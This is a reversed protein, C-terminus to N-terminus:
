RCNFRHWMTDPYGGEMAVQGAAGLNDLHLAVADGLNNRFQVLAEGADFRTKAFIATDARVYRDGHVTLDCAATQSLLQGLFTLDM